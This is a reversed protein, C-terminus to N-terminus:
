ERRQGKDCRSGRSTPGVGPTLVNFRSRRTRPVRRATWHSRCIELLVIWLHLVPHHHGANAQNCRTARPGLSGPLSEDRTLAPDAGDGGEIGAVQFGAEAPLCLVEIGQVKQIALLRTAQGPILLEGHRGRVQGDLLPGLATVGKKMRLIRGLMAGAWIAMRCPKLPEFQDAFEAQAVLAWARPSAM